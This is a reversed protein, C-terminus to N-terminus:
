LNLYTVLNVVGQYCYDIFLISNEYILNLNQTYIEIKMIQKSEFFKKYGRTELYLLIHISSNCSNTWVMDM